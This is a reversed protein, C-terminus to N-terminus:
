GGVIVAEPILYHQFNDITISWNDGQKVVTVKEKPDASTVTDGAFRLIRLHDKHLTVDFGPDALHVEAHGNTGRIVGFSCQASGAPDPGVSCPVTGTAHYPTGRVKADARGTIGVSLTYKATENRRAASRMLFVRIRYEGDAPLAGSWQNGVNAGIAIAAESGPPLVNFYNAGNSTKLGVRMTQGARARLIYDVTEDGKVSGTITASATGPKFTVREQRIGQALGAASSAAVGAIVVTRAWDRSMTKEGVYRPMRRRGTVTITRVGGRDIAMALVDGLWHEAHV